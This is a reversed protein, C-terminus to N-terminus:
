INVAFKSFKSVSTSVLNDFVLGKDVNDCFFTAIIMMMITM